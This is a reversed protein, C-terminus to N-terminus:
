LQQMAQRLERVVQEDKGAHYANTGVRDIKQCVVWHSFKGECLASVVKYAEVGQALIIKPKLPLLQDWLLMRDVWIDDESVKTRAPLPLKILPLWGFEAIGIGLGRGSRDHPKLCSHTRRARALTDPPFCSRTGIERVLTRRHCHTSVRIGSEAHRDEAFRRIGLIGIAAALATVLRAVKLAASAV